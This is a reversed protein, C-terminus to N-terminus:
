WLEMWIVFYQKQNIEVDELLRFYNAKHDRLGPLADNWLNTITIDDTPLGLLAQEKKKNTFWESKYQADNAASDEVDVGWTDQWMGVMGAKFGLWTQMSQHFFNETLAGFTAEPEVIKNSLEGEYELTRMYINYDDWDKFMDGRGTKYSELRHFHAVEYPTLIEINRIKDQEEQILTQLELSKQRRESLYLEKEEEQQKKWDEEDIYSNDFIASSQLYGM